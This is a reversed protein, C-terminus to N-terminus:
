VAYNSESSGYMAVGAYEGAKNLIFFRVDFNPLGRSNLLRAEVTNDKIRRLAAMGADLPTM